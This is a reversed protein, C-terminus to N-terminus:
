GALAAMWSTSPYVIIGAAALAIGYPAGSSRDHLRLIWDQGALGAPLPMIRAFLLAMTLLGGILTVLVGYTMLHDWGMWLSTAAFVKADGGGIWGRAFMLFSLVLMGLGASVHLGIEVLSFGALPALLGFGAILALSVRNPITMTFLDMAAAFAMAAPFVLLIALDFLM